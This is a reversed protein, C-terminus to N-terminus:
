NRQLKSLLRLIELYLWVVTVLIGFGAYWEVQKPMGAAQAREVFDFDLALNFAALGAVLFSFGIGLPSASNIFPVDGGFLNVLISIGYFVAIGLTAGIVIRRMRDTVKIIRTRYLVLMVAFVAMTAGAAQVVIGDYQNEYAKSIAGVFFGEAIAYVPALWKAWMPKFALTIAVAFGVFIGVIALMPFEVSNFGADPTSAWGAAASLLLLAFLIATTQAVGGVTLTQAHWTSVPGDTIPGGITTSRQGTPAGWGAQAGEAAATANAAQALRKDNLLPNSM